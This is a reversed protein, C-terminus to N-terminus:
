RILAQVSELLEFDQGNLRISDRLQLSQFVELAQFLQVDAMITDLLNLTELLVHPQGNDTYAFM